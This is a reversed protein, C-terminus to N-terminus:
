PPALPADLLPRAGAGAAGYHWWETALGEFGASTMARDLRGLRARIAPDAAPHDRHAAPGFADHDTPMALPAGDADALSVDVAAGRSHASGGTPRGAADFRPEAVYRPDPVLAWLARQVSAPRYCDWMVLRLGDARLTAAADALRDAVDALLLCRAVPYVRHHTFNDATAYRLDLVVDPIVTVVDVLGAAAAPSAVAAPAVGSAPPTGM